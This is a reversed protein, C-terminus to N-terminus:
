STKPVCASSFVPRLAKFNRTKLVLSRTPIQGRMRRSVDHGRSRGFALHIARPPHSTIGFHFVTLRTRSQPRLCLPLGAAVTWSPSGICSRLRPKASGLAIARALGKALRLHSGQSLPLRIGARAGTVFSSAPRALREPKCTKQILAKPSQVTPLCPRRAKRSAFHRRATLPCGSAFPMLCRAGLASQTRHSLDILRGPAGVCTVVRQHSHPRCCHRGWKSQVCAELAKGAGHRERQEGKTWAWVILRVAM